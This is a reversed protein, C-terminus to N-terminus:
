SRYHFLVWWLKARVSSLSREMLAPFITNSQKGQRRSIAHFSHYQYPVRCSWMKALAILEESRTATDLLYPLYKLALVLAWFPELKKNCGIYEKQRWRFNQSNIIVGKSKRWRWLWPRHKSKSAWHYIGPFHAPRCNHIYSFCREAISNLIRNDVAHHQSRQPNLFFDFLLTDDDRLMFLWCIFSRLTAQQIDDCIFRFILGQVVLADAPTCPMSNINRLHVVLAGSLRLVMFTGVAFPCFDLTSVLAQDIESLYRTSILDSHKIDKMFGAIFVLEFNTCLICVLSPIFNAFDM